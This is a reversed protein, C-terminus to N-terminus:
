DLHLHEKLSDFGMRDFRAFMKTNVQVKLSCCIRKNVNATYPGDFTFPNDQLLAYASILYKGDYELERLKARNLMQPKVKQFTYIEKQTKNGFQLCVEKNEKMNPLFTNVISRLDCQKLLCTNEYWVVFDNSLADFQAFEKLNKDISIVDYGTLDISTHLVYIKNYHKGYKRISKYALDFYQKKTVEEFVVDVDEEIQPTEEKAIDGISKKQVELYLNRIFQMDEENVQIMKDQLQKRFDSIKRFLKYDILELHDQANKIQGLVDIRHDLDAGRNHGSIVQKCYSLAGALHKLVCEFCIMNKM